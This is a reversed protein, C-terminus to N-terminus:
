ELAEPEAYGGTSSSSASSFPAPHGCGAWARNIVSKGEIQDQDGLPGMAWYKWDGILLYRNRYITEAPPPPWVVVVGHEELAHCFTEFVRALDLRWAKVTYEHPWDPMTKAYRWEVGDIYSLLAQEDTSM